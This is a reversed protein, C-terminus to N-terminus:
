LLRSSQISHFIIRAWLFYLHRPKTGNEGIKWWAEWANEGMSHSSSVGEQSSWIQACTSYGQVAEFWVYVCKGLWEDGDLPLPIGWTLDRTVARSRLGMDLWQKTMARVNSKWVKDQSMAHQELVEQVLRTPLLFPRYRKGRHYFQNM